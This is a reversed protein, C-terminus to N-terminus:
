QGQTAKGTVLGLRRLHKVLPYSAAARIAKHTPNSIVLNACVEAPTTHMGLGMDYSDVTRDGLRLGTMAPAM